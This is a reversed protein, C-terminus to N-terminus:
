EPQPSNSPSNPAAASPAPTVGPVTIGGSSPATPPVGIAPAAPLPAPAGPKANKDFGLDQVPPLTIQVHRGHVKRDGRYLDIVDGTARSGNAKDVVVPDLTLEIMDKQPFVEAQGCTAERLGDNQTMHVHGIALLSKFGTQKGITAVKDTVRTTVVILRDCTMRLNTGTVVVDEKFDSTTENDTSVGEYLNSTIVTNQPTIAPAPAARGTAVAALLLGPLLSRRFIM